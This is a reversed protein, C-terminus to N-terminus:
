SSGWGWNNSANAMIRDCRLQKKLDKDKKWCNIVLHKTKNCYSCVLSDLDQFNAAFVPHPSISNELHTINTKQVVNDADPYVVTGVSTRVVCKELDPVFGVFSRVYGSYWM